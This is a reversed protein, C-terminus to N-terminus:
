DAIESRKFRKKLYYHYIKSDAYPFPFANVLSWGQRGMYNLADIVTNFEKLKGTEEDKLRYNKFRRPREHGFDLAINLKNSFPANTVVMDCYQEVTTTDQALTMLTTFGFLTFILKKM